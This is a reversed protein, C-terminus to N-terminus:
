PNQLESSFFSYFSFFSAAKFCIQTICVMVGPPERRVGAATLGKVDRGPSM